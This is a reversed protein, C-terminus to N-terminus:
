AGTVREIRIQSGSAIASTARARGPATRDAPGRRGAAEDREAIAIENRTRNLIPCGPSCNTVSM